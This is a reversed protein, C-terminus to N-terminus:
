SRGTERGAPEPPTGQLAADAARTLSPVALTEQPVDRAHTHAHRECEHEEDRRADDEEDSLHVPLLARGVDDHLRDVVQEDVAVM